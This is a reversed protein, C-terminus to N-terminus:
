AGRAGFGDDFVGIEGRHAGAARDQRVRLRGERTEAASRAAIPGPLLLSQVAAGGRQLSRRRLRAAERGMAERELPQLPMANQALREQLTELNRSANQSMDNIFAELAENEIFWPSLGFHVLSHGSLESGSLGLYMGLGGLSSLLKTAGADPFFGLQASHFRLSTSETIIPFRANLFLSAASTLFTGNMIALVPLQTLIM